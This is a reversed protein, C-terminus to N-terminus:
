ARSSCFGAEAEGQFCYDLVDDFCEMTERPLVSPHPGGLLTVAKKKKCAKLMIRLNALDYTYCQFGIVDLDKSKIYDYFNAPKIGEKICDLIEVNHNNRIATALYGLGLSPQIHDSLNYPKVLLINM